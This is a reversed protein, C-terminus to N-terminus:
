CLILCILALVCGEISDCMAFDDDLIVRLSVDLAAQKMTKKSTWLIEVAMELAEQAAPVNKTTPRNLAYELKPRHQISTRLPSLHFIALPLFSPDPSSTLPVSM